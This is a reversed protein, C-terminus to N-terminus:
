RWGREGGEGDEAGGAGDAGNADEAEGVGVVEGARGDQILQALGKWETLFESALTAESLGQINLREKWWGLQWWLFEIIWRMEEELLDLSYPNPTPGGLIATQMGENMAVDDSPEWSEERNVWIWSLKPAVKCGKRRRRGKQKKKREPDHFHSQPLGRADDELLPQLTWEWERRNLRRGLVVLAVCAARYGAVVKKTQGVASVREPFGNDMVAVKAADAAPAEWFPSAEDEHARINALGPFFKHQVNIWVVLKRRLKSTHEMMARHQSCHLYVTLIDADEQGALERAEAEAALEAHMSAVHQDKRITKFPNPARADAEWKEAIETWEKVVEPSLLMIMDVLAMHMAGTGPVAKEMKRHMTYGASQCKETQRASTPPSISHINSTAPRLTPLSTSNPFSSPSSNGRGDLTLTKDQYKIMHEWIHLRWQCAIDYSVFFQLLDPGAVSHLFMYDMNMYREGWQLHGVVLPRKMNHHACDVAGIGSSVTGRAKRDPKDVADHAVCHIYVLSTMAYRVVCDILRIQKQNWNRKVHQMYALVKCYFAWGNGLGPDKEESLIDKRKLRFSADIAVFLAYLFQKEERMDKWNPPLNKGPRFVLLTMVVARRWQRTMQLFKHYHDKEKKYHLNDNERALSQINNKGTEGRYQSINSSCLTANVAWTINMKLALNIEFTPKAAQFKAHANENALGLIYIKSLQDPHLRKWNAFAIISELHNGNIRQLALNLSPLPADDSDLHDSDLHDANRKRTRAPSSVLTVAFMLHDSDQDDSDDSRRPSSSSAM